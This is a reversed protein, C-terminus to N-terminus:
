VVRAAVGAAVVDLVGGAEALVGVGGGGLVVALVGFGDGGVNVLGTDVVVVAFVGSVVLLLVVVGVDTFVGGAGIDVGGVGVALVRGGGGGVAAVFVHHHIYAHICAVVAFTVRLDQYCVPMCHM